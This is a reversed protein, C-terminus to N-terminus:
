EADTLHTGHKGTSNLSLAEVIPLLMMTLMMPMSLM